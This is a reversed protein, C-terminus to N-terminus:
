VVDPSAKVTKLPKLKKSWSWIISVNFVVSGCWVHDGNPHPAELVHTGANQVGGAHGCVRAKRSFETPSGLTVGFMIATRRTHPRRFMLGQTKFTVRMGVCPSKAFIGHSQGFDCWVHDGNPIPIPGGSRSDRCGLVKSFTVWM